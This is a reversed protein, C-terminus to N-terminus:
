RPTGCPRAALRAGHAQRVPDAPHHPRAGPDPDLARAHRRVAPRTAALGSATLVTVAGIVAAVTVPEGLFIAAAAGVVPELTLLIAATTADVRTQAWTVAVFAAATAVAGLYLVRGLTAPDPLRLDEGSIAGILLAVAGATTMQVLTSACVRDSRVWRSLGCLHVAWLVAAAMILLAGGGVTTGRLTLLALGALALVVAVLSRRALRQRLWLWAVMPTFVVTAGVIFAAAVVSTTRMGYACLLFGLGLLLGLLVGSRLTQRDMILISQPRLLALGAAAIGFRWGVLTGPSVDALGDKIVVFSLGWAVAVSVLAAIVWGGPRGAPRTPRDLTSDASALRQALLGSVIGMGRNAREVWALTTAAV